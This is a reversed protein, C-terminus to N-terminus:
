GVARDAVQWRHVPLDRAGRIDPVVAEVDSPWDLRGQLGDWADGKRPAVTLPRGAPPRPVLALCRCGDPELERAVPGSCTVITLGDPRVQRHAVLRATRVPVTEVTDIVTLEGSSPAVLARDLDVLPLVVVSRVTMLDTYEHPRAAFVRATRRPDAIWWRTLYRALTTKGQGPDSLLVVVRDTTTQVHVPSGDMGHGISVKMGPSAPLGNGPRVASPSHPLPAARV